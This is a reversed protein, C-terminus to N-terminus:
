VNHFRISEKLHPDNIPVLSYKTAQYIFLTIFLGFLGLWSTIDLIHVSARGGAYDLAHVPMALWHIDFWHVVLFWVGMVMLVPISRKMMRPMLILFPLVFHFAVLLTTHLEWGHQLRYRYWITEEPINAYWILMFQSFAIYAWFATFGFMFKALDQYHETTVVGKLMGGQRQLLLSALLIFALASFFSGAFYYVGFITSFWHPDLTMLFDFAAFQLTIAFLPLGWASVRRQAAPIDPSPAVDQLLSLRYLKYALVNWAIFYIAVRVLFFPTNLYGRKGAVLPDYYPDAPDFLRPNTWHAYLTDMGILIPISLITLMPISWLAMEPIRRLATSWSARTLHHILVFFMCGLAISVCFAWGILYSYYFRPPDVIWGVVSVVLLAASIALPILWATAAPRFRYRADAEENTPSFPSVLLAPFPRNRLENAMHLDPENM